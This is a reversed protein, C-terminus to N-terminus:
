RENHEWLREMVRNVCEEVLRNDEAKSRTGGAQDRTQTAEGGPEHDAVITRIVLERIVIPM